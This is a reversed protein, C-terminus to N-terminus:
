LPCLKPNVIGAGPDSHGRKTCHWGSLVARNGLSVALHGVRSVWVVLFCLATWRHHAYMVPLWNVFQGRCQIGGASIQLKFQHTLHVDLFVRRGPSRFVLASWHSPASKRFWIDVVSAVGQM